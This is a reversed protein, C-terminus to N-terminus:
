GAPVQDPLSPMNGRLGGHGGAGESVPLVVIQEDVEGGAEPKPWPIEGAPPEIGNKKLWERFRGGQKITIGDETVTLGLKRFGKRCQESFLDDRCRQQEWADLLLKM